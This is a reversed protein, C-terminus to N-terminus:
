KTTEKKEGEVARSAKGSAAKGRALYDKSEGDSNNRVGRRQM